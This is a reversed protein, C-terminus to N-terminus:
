ESFFHLRTATRNDDYSHICMNINNHIDTEPGPLRPSRAVGAISRRLRPSAAWGGRPFISGLDNQLPV